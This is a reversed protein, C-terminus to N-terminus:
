NNGNQQRVFNYIHLTQTGKIPSKKNLSLKKVPDQSPIYRLLQDQKMKGAVGGNLVGEVPGKSVM